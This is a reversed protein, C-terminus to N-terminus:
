AFPKHCRGFNPHVVNDVLVGGLIDLVAATHHTDVRVDRWDWRTVGDNLTQTIGVKKAGEPLKAHQDNM